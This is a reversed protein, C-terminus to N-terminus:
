YKNSIESIVMPIGARVHSLADSYRAYLRDALDPNEEMVLMSAVYYAAAPSFRVSMPFDEDAAIATADFVDPLLPEGADATMNHRQRYSADMAYCEGVFCALLYPMRTRYGSTHDPHNGAGILRIVNDFIAECKM